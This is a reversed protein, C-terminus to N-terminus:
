ENAKLKMKLGLEIFIVMSSERNGFKSGISSKVFYGLKEYAWGMELNVTPVVYHNLEYERSTTSGSGLDVSFGLEELQRWYGIGGSFLMYRRKGEIEHKKGLELNILWNTNNGTRSFYAFQPSFLLKKYPTEVTLGVKTGPQLGYHSFYGVSLEQGNSSYWLAFLFMSTLLNRM